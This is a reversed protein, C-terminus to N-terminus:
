VIAQARVILQGGDDAMFQTVQVIAVADDAGTGEGAGRELLFHLSIGECDAKEASRAVIRQGQSLHQVLHIRVASSGPRCLPYGPDFFRELRDCGGALRLGAKRATDYPVDTVRNRAYWAM